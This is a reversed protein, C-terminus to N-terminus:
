LEIVRSGTDRTSVSVQLSVLAQAAQELLRSLRSMSLKAGTGTETGTLTGTLTWPELAQFLQVGASRWGKDEHDDATPEISSLLATLDPLGAIMDEEGEDEEEQNGGMVDVRATAALV